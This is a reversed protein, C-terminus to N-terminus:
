QRRPTAPTIRKIGWWLAYITIAIFLIIFWGALVSIMVLGIWQAMLNIEPALHYM